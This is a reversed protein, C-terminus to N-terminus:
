KSQGVVREYLRWTASAARDWSFLAARRPGAERLVNALAPDLLVQELMDAWLDPDLPDLLVGADAVVEPLSGADSALVPVGCALAELAPLGFGEYLSPLVFARAGQYAPPLDADALPGLLRVIDRLGLEDVRKYTREYLWGEAGALALAPLPRVNARDRLLSYAELLMPLNKRPEITGVFLVYGGEEPSPLGLRRAAERQAHEMDPPPSFQPGAAAPIVAIKDPPVGLLEVTDDKASQSLAILAEADRAARPVQAYYRRSEETLLTVEPLKLFALDQINAVAPFRRFRPPVFDPSHAIDPRPRMALLELGLAPQEFRNHPPTWVPVRRFRRDRVLRERDARMQMVSVRSHPGMEPVRSMARLLNIAYQGIGARRYRVMRADFLVHLPRHVSV